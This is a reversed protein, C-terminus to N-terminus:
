PSVAASAAHLGAACLGGAGILTGTAILGHPIMKGGGTDGGQRAALM